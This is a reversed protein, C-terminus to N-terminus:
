IKFSRKGFLSAADVIVAKTGFIGGNFPIAKVIDDEILIYNKDEM